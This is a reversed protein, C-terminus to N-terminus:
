LLESMWDKASETWMSLTTNARRTVLHLVGLVGFQTRAPQIKVVAMSVYRHSLNTKPAVMSQAARMTGLERQQLQLDRFRQHSLLLGINLRPVTDKQPTGQLQLSPLRIHALLHCPFVLIGQRQHFAM